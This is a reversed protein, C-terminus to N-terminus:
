VADRTWPHQKHYEASGTDRSDESTVTTQTVYIVAPENGRGTRNNIDNGDDIDGVRGRVRTALPILFREDTHQHHHYYYRGDNRAAAGRQRPWAWAWASGKSNAGKSSRKSTPSGRGRQQSHSCSRSHSGLLLWPPLLPLSALAKPASPICLVLFSCALEALSALEVVSMNYAM